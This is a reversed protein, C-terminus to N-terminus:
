EDPELLAVRCSLALLIAAALLVCVLLRFTVVVVLVVVSTLSFSVVSHEV